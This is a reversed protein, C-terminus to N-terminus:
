FVCACSDFLGFFSTTPCIKQRIRFLNFQPEFVTPLFLLNLASKPSSVRDRKAIQIPSPCLDVDGPRRTARTRRREGRRYERMYASFYARREEPTKNKWDSLWYNDGAARWFRRHIRKWITSALPSHGDWYWRYRATSLPIHCYCCQGRKM